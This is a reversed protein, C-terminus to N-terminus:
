DCGLNKSCVWHAVDVDCRSDISKYGVHSRESFNLDQVHAFKLLSAMFVDLEDLCVQHDVIRIMAGNGIGNGAEMGNLM